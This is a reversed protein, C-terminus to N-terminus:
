DRGVKGPLDAWAVLKQLYIWMQPSELRNDINFINWLQGWNESICHLSTPLFRETVFFCIPHRASLFVCATSTSAVLQVLVFWLVVSFLLCFFDPSCSLTLVTNIFLLCFCLFPLLCFCAVRFGFSSLFPEAPAGSPGCKDWTILCGGDQDREDAGKEILRQNERMLM